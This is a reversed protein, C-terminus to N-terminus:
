QLQLEGAGGRLFPGVFRIPSAKLAKALDDKGEITLSGVMARSWAPRLVVHVQWVGGRRADLQWFEEIPQSLATSDGTARGRWILLARELKVRYSDFTTDAQDAVSAHAERLPVRNREAARIFGSRNGYLEVARDRRRGSKQETAALTWAALMQYKRPDKDAIRRDGMQVADLFYFCLSSASWSAFEPQSQIVQRLASHLLRDRGAPVLRLDKDLMKSAPGPAILFRVCYGARLGQLM